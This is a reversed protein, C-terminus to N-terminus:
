QVLYDEILINKLPQSLHQNMVSMLDSKLTEAADAHKLSPLPRNNLFYYVADRLIITKRQIELSLTPDEIVLVIRLSLFFVGDDQAFAVWFPDMPQKFEEVVPKPEPVPPAEPLSVVEPAPPPRTFWIILGALLIAVLVGAILLLRRPTKAPPESEPESDVGDRKSDQTPKPPPAEDPLDDLFPADDLDLAVKQTTEKAVPEHDLIQEDRELPNVEIPLSSDSPKNM